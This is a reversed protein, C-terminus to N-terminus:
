SSRSKTRTLRSTLVTCIRSSSTTGTHIEFLRIEFGYTAPSTIALLGSDTAVMGAPAYGWDVEQVMTGNSLNIEAIKAPPLAGSNTQIEGVYLRNGDPSMVMVSPSLSLTLAYIEAGDVLRLARVVQTGPEEVYLRERVRDFAWQGNTTIPYLNQVQGQANLSLIWFPFCGVAILFAVAVLHRKRRIM